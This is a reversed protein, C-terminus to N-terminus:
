LDDAEAINLAMKLYRIAKNRENELVSPIHSFDIVFINKNNLVNSLKRSELKFKALLTDIRSNMSVNNDKRDFIIFPKEFLISFVTGHFSDTCILSASNIYDIFEGPGAIYTQGDKINSLNVIKLDNTKAIKKITRLNEKSLNGLFYTLLYKKKPKCISKKSVSLWKDKTIMLTPDVLVEANRNTLEKIIRAGAEERVSLSNMESLWIKYNRRYDIPIDSIGFSPAYAIRKKKPAFTLFDISSGYRFNPNWVQDSGTIFYDFKDSIDRPINNESICYKTGIINLKTFNIFSQKRVNILNKNRCIFTIKNIIKKILKKPTFKYIKSLKYSFSSDNEKINEIYNVITETDFGLSKLVEQSAYNQLRNGYNNYDNITIIGIKKNM